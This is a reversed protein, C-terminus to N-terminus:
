LFLNLLYPALYVEFLSAFLFICSTVFLVKSYRKLSRKFNIERKLFLYQFLKWSFSVSYFTLVIALILIIFQHPFTYAFAIPIGKWHYM